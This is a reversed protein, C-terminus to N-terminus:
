VQIKDVSQRFISIFNWSFEHLPPRNRGHPRFSSCSNALLQKERNQSRAKSVHGLIGGSLFCVDQKYLEIQLFVSVYFM